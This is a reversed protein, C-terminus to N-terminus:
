QWTILKEMAAPYKRMAYAFYEDIHVRMADEAAGTDGASIAAYIRQHATLVSQRRRPPYEIGHSAGSMDMSGVMVDVLFGFLSNGSAWAITNHFNENSALYVENDSLNEAMDSLSQQLIKDQEPTIREAALSAMLPEIAARAEAIARYPARNFQLLLSLTASLSEAGPEQVVPGGGPGPKFSLLGQLELYRLSERLTGRGAGYQEMMLREAPLREGPRLGGRDIDRVIRQALILATKQPRTARRM